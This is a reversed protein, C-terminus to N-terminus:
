QLDEEKIEHKKQYGCRYCIEIYYPRKALREKYSYRYSQNYTQHGFIRCLLKEFLNIM